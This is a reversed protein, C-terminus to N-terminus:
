ALRAAPPHGIQPRRHASGAAEQRRGTQSALTNATTEFKTPSFTGLTCVLAPSAEQHLWLVFYSDSFGLRIQSNASSAEGKQIIQAPHFEVSSSSSPPSPNRHGVQPQTQDGPVAPYPIWVLVQVGAAAPTQNGQRPLCKNRVQVRLDLRAPRKNNCKEEKHRSAVKFPAVQARTPLCM